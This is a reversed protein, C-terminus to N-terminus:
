LYGDFLKNIARIGDKDLDTIKSANREMELIMKKNEANRLKFRRKRAIESNVCFLWEQVQNEGRMNIMFKIYEEESVLYDLYDRLYILKKNDLKLYEKLKKKTKEKDGQLFANRVGLLIKYKKNVFIWKMFYSVYHKTELKERAIRYKEFDSRRFLYFSDIIDNLKHYLSYLTYFNTQMYSITPNISVFAFGDVVDKHNM